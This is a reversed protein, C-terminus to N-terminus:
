KLLLAAANAEAEAKKANALAVNANASAVDANALALNAKAKVQKARKIEADAEALKIELELLEIERARAEAAQAAAQAAEIQKMALIQQKIQEESLGLVNNLEITGKKANKQILRLEAYTFIYKSGDTSVSDFHGGRPNSLFIGSVNDKSSTGIINYTKNEKILANRTYTDLFYGLQYVELYILPTHCLYKSKYNIFYTKINDKTIPLKVKKIIDQYFVNKRFYTGIKNKDEINTIKRFSSSCSTLISNVLCDSNSGSAQIVDYQVDNIKFSTNENIVQDTLSIPIKNSKIKKTVWEEISSFKKNDIESEPSIGNFQIDKNRVIEIKSRLKIKIDENFNQNENILILTVDLFSSKEDKNSACLSYYIYSLYQILFGIIQKEDVNPFTQLIDNYDNKDFNYIKEIDDVTMLKNINASLRQYITQEVPHAAANSGSAAAANSGSAAATAANSGPPAAAANSGSNALDPNSELMEIVKRIEDAEKKNLTNSTNQELTLLKEALDYLRSAFSAKKDLEEQEAPPHSGERRSRADDRAKSYDDLPRVGGILMNIYDELVKM